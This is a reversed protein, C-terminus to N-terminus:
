GPDNSHIPKLPHSIFPHFHGIGLTMSVSCRLAKLVRTLRTLVPKELIGTHNHTIKVRVYMLVYTVAHSAVRSISQHFHVAHIKNPDCITKTKNEAIKPSLYIKTIYIPPIVSIFQEAINIARKVYLKGRRENCDVSLLTSRHRLQPHHPRHPANSIMEGKRSSGTMAHHGPAKTSCYLSSTLVDATHEAENSLDVSNIPKSICINNGRTQNHTNKTKQPNHPSPHSPCRVSPKPETTGIGETCPVVLLPAKCLPPFPLSPPLSQFYLRLRIQFFKSKIGWFCQKRSMLDM